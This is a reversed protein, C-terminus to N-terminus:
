QERCEPCALADCSAGEVVPAGLPRSEEREDDQKRERDCASPEAEDLPIQM